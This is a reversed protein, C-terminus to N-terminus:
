SKNNIGKKESIERAYTRGQLPTLLAKWYEKSLINAGAMLISLLGWLFRSLSKFILRHQINWIGSTLYVRTFKGKWFPEKASDHLRLIVDEQDLVIERLFRSEAVVREMHTHSGEAGRRVCAVLESTGNIPSVLAIRRLLYKDEPNVRTPPFGDVAFFAETKILSIQTPIWEGAMAQVFINGNFNPRFKIIPKDERDVFQAGGYIWDSDPYQRALEWFIKLANPYLWDDDDLINLYRGKAVAAGTNWAVCRERRQTQVITVKDSKQWPEIPLPKGSDNVVIVEFDAERFSQDLVSNAARALIDRGITAIITSCFM